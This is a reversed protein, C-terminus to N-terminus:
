KPANDKLQSKDTTQMSTNMAPKFQHNNNKEGTDPL